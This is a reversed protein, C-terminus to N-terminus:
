STTKRPKRMIHRIVNRRHRARDTLPIASSPMFLVTSEPQSDEIVMTERVTPQERDVLYIEVCDDSATFQLTPDELAELSRAPGPFTEQLMQLLIEQLLAQKAVAKEFHSGFGFRCEHCEPGVTEDFENLHDILHRAIDFLACFPVMEPTMEGLRYHLVDRPAPSLLGRYNGNQVHKAEETIEELLALRQHADM